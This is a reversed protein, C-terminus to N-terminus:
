REKCLAYIMAPHVVAKNEPASSQAKLVESLTEDLQVWEQSNAKPWNIREKRDTEETKEKKQAEAKRPKSKSKQIKKKEPEKKEAYQSRLEEKQLRGQLLEVTMRERAQALDTQKFNM